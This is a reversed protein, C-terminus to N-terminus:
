DSLQFDSSCHPNSYWVGSIGTRRFNLYTKSQNNYMKLMWFRLFLDPNQIGKQFKLLLLLINILYGVECVEFEVHSVSKRRADFAFRKAFDINAVNCQPKMKM